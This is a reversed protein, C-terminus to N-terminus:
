FCQKQGNGPNSVYDLNIVRGEEGWGESIHSDRRVEYVMIFLSHMGTQVVVGKWLAEGHYLLVLRCMYVGSFMNLYAAEVKQERPCVDEFMLLSM